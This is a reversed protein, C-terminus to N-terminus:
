RLLLELLERKEESLSDPRVLLAHKLAQRNEEDIPPLQGDLLVKLLDRAKGLTDDFRRLIAKVTVHDEPYDRWCAYDTVLGLTAYSMQAERALFVEPVNTMGVIDAGLTRLMHSEARTGLRPGDICAYTLHAHLPLDLTVAAAALWGALHPCVPEATSIHASLGGGLFTTERPGKVLDLYQSAVAFHGPRVADRLSGVASIGLIQRVGLLKLGYINARYNVEHPLFEHQTGHRPLFFVTHGKYRAELIPASPAGYPTMLRHERVPDLQDLTYLGTGGILALM